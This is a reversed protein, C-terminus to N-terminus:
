VTVPEVPPQELVAVTPRVTIFPGVMMADAFGVFTQAPLLEVKVADPAKPYVQFGPASRPEVTETDGGEVVM